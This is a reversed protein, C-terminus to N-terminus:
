QPIYNVKEDEYRKKNIFKYYVFYYLTIGIVAGTFDILVDRVSSTRGPVYIQHFEDLVAYFLCIFMIYIITGRGRLNFQFLVFSIIIALVCYEFAHANKRIILNLKEERANKPLSNYHRKEEGELQNYQARIKNLINYSKVNSVDGSKTSNYFIFGFWLLCIILIIAKKM